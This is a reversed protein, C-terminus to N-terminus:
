SFCIKTGKEIEDIHVQTEMYNLVDKISDKSLPKANSIQTQAKYIDEIDITDYPKQM